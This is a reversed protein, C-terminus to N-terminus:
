WNARIRLPKYSHCKRCFYRDPYKTADCARSYHDIVGCVPCIVDYKYTKVVPKTVKYEMVTYTKDNTTGIERCVAKFVKNHGQDSGTRVNAIVHAVEHLLVDNICKDTALRLLSESFEIGIVKTIRGARGLFKARGLTRSLRPNITVPCAVQCHSKALAENVLSQLKKATM